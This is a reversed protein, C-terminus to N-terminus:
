YMVKQKLKKRCYSEWFSPLQLAFYLLLYLPVYSYVGVNRGVVIISMSREILDNFTYKTQKKRHYDRTTDNQISRTGSENKKKPSHNNGIFTNREHHQTRRQEYQQTPQCVFLTPYHTTFSNSM